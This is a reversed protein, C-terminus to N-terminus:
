PKGGEQDLRHAPLHARPHHPHRAVHHDADGHGGGREDAEPRELVVV